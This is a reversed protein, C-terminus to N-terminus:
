FQMLFINPNCILCHLKARGTNANCPDGYYVYQKKEGDEDLYKSKNSQGQCLEEKEVKLLEM